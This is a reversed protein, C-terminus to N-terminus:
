KEIANMDTDCTTFIMHHEDNENLIGHGGIRSKKQSPGDLSLKGIEPMSM